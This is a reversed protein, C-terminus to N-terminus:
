KRRTKNKRLMANQQRKIKNYAAKASILTVNKDSGDIFEFGQGTIINYHSKIM